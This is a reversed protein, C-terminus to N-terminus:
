ATDSPNIPGSSSMGSGVSSSPTSISASTAITGSSAADNVHFASYVVRGCQADAPAGVPTNFTYHHLTQALNQLWRAPVTPARCKVDAVGRRRRGGRQGFQSRCSQAPHQRSRRELRREGAVACLREGQSLPVNVNAAVPYDFATGFYKTESTWNATPPFHTDPSRVWTYNYHTTFVRGGAGAYRRPQCLGIGQGIHQTCERLAASGRRVEEPQRSRGVACGSGAHDGRRGPAPPAICRSEAARPPFPSSAIM